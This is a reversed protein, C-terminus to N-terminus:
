PEQILSELKQNSKQSKLTFNMQSNNNKTKLYKTNMLKQDQCNIKTPKIITETQNLIEEFFIVRSNPKISKM